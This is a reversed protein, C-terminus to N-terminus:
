HHVSADCGGHGGADGGTPGCDAPGTAHHHGGANHPLVFDTYTSDATTKGPSSGLSKRAARSTLIWTALIAVGVILLGLISSIDM